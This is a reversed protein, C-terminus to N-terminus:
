MDTPPLNDKNKNRFSRNLREKMLDAQSKIGEKMRNMKEGVGSSPKEEQESSTDLSIEEQPDEEMSVDDEETRDSNPIHPTLSNNNLYSRWASSDHRDEVFQSAGEIPYIPNDHIGDDSYQHDSDDHHSILSSDSPPPGEGKPRSFFSFANKVADSIRDGVAEFGGRLLNFKERLPSASKEQFLGKDIEEKQEPSLSSNQGMIQMEESNDEDSSRHKFRNAIGERIRERVGELGERFNFRRSTSPGEETFLGKDIEERQEPSLPSSNERPSYLEQSNDSSRSKFRDFVGAIRERRERMKARFGSPEKPIADEQESAKESKNSVNGKVGLCEQLVNTINKVSSEEQPRLQNLTNRMKEFDANQLPAQTHPNILKTLSTMRIWKDTLKALFQSLKSHNKPETLERKEKLTGRFLYTKQEGSESEIKLSIFYDVEKKKSESNVFIKTELVKTKIEAQSKQGELERQFENLSINGQPNESRLESLSKFEYSGSGQVSM